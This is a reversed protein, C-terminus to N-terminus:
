AGVGAHLHDAPASRAGVGLGHPTTPGSRHHLVACDDLRNGQPDRGFEVSKPQRYPVPQRAVVRDALGAADPSLAKTRFPMHGDRPQFEQPSGAANYLSWPLSNVLSWMACTQASTFTCSIWLVGSVGSLRSVPHTAQSRSVGPPRPEQTRPSVESM